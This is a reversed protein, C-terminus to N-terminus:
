DESGGTKEKNAAAAKQAELQMRAIEMRVELEKLALEKKQKLEELRFEALATKDGAEVQVRLSEVQHRLQDEVKRREHELVQPEPPPPPWDEQGPDTFFVDAGRFGMAKNLETAARYLDQPKVMFAAGSAIAEKQLNITALLYQIQEAAAGIGLGTKITVDMDESWQSPNIEVWQGRLKVTRAKNNYERFMRYLLKGLRKMGTQAIIRGILEVRAQGASMLANVGTATGNLASADLGQTARSVGVRTERIQDLYNMMEMAVPGLQPTVVPEMSDLSDMRVIGGPRNTLLDEIVVQGTVVKTQQNNSLYINDLLQRMLTSRILQLDGVLDYISQGFFRHPLPSASISAFPPCNAYEDLIIVVSSDGIAMIHRLESYGDGDEDIRIYVNNVWLQRSAADRREQDTLPFSTEDARRETYNMALEPSQDFPWSYVEEPDFGMSILDSASMKVKEGVFMCEDTLQREGRRIMFEEPPIGRVCIRGNEAIKRVSVNVTPIPDPRIEEGTQPDIAPPLQFPTGDEFEVVQLTPDEALMNELEAETLGQYMKVKPEFRQDYYVYVFGNKELLATFFWDYLVQFGDMSQWFEQNIFATAQEAQAKDEPKTERFEFVDEGSAFMRMLSPMIWHITDAVETLVVESRGPIENGFPKGFFYRLAKRREADIQSGSVLTGVASQIEAAVISAVESEDMPRMPGSAVAGSLEQAIEPTMDQQELASTDSVPDIATALDVLSPLSPTSAAM